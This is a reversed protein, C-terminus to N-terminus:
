VGGLVSESLCCAFILRLLPSWMPSHRMETFGQGTKEAANNVKAMNTDPDSGTNAALFLDQNSWNQEKSIWNM